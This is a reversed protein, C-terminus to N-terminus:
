GLGFEDVHPEDREGLRETERGLADPPIENCRSRDVPCHDTRGRPKNRRSASFMHLAPPAAVPGSMPVASAANALPRSVVYVFAEALRSNCVLDALGALQGAEEFGKKSLQQSRRRDRVTFRKRRPNGGGPWVRGRFTARAGLGRPKPRISNPAMASMTAIM